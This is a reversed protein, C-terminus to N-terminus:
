VPNVCSMYNASKLHAFCALGWSSLIIIIMIVINNNNPIETHNSWSSRVLCPKFGPQHLIPFGYGVSALARWCTTTISSPSTQRRQQDWIIMHSNILQLCGPTAVRGNPVATEIHSRISRLSQQNTVLEWFSGVHKPLANPPIWQYLKHRFLSFNCQWNNNKFGIM